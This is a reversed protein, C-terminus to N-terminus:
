VHARGIEQSFFPDNPDQLDLSTLGVDHFTVGAKLGLALKLNTGVQLTYSFDAFVNTETVPGLEDKIVSLGLGTKDGIPSHASFTFTDPAGDLGAWQTRYLATISLSEKSGAYAPNIVNMNYMYQTYQPDQQAYINDVFLISILLVLLSLKKM